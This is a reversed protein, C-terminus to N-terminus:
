SSRSLSTFGHRDKGAQDPMAVRRRVQAHVAVPEVGFDTGVEGFDRDAIAADREIAKVEVGPGVVMLARV